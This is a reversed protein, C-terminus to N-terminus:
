KSFMRETIARLVGLTQIQEFVFSLSILKLISCCFNFSLFVYFFLYTGLNALFANLQFKLRFIAWGYLMMTKNTTTKQM